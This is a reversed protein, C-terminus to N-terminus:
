GSAKVEGTYVWTQSTGEAAIDGRASNMAKMVKNMKAKTEFELISVGSNPGTKASNYRSLNGAKVQAKLGPELHKKFLKMSEAWGSSNEVVWVRVYSM